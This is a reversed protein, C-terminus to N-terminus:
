GQLRPGASLSSPWCEGAVADVLDPNIVELGRGAGTMLCRSALRELGRPIGLSIAHLRTIARPTFMRESSGARELKATLYREAQSRTLADLGATLLWAGSAVPQGGGDTRELQIITLGTSATSGLHTLSDLDRRTAADVSDDCDDVAMVVHYGQLSAVRVARELARWAGLRGSERGVRQGLREALLTLLLIGDNPCSVSAFRRRPSHAQALAKRLVTTKGLGSAAALIARRQTTEIAFVLCAVAEDHSPLSVYASDFEAFPDRSLGWHHFTSPQVNFTSPQVPDIRQGM